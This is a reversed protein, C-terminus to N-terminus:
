ALRECAVIFAWSLAFFGIGLGLYLLDMRDETTRHISSRSGHVENRLTRRHPAAARAVSSGSARRTDSASRRGYSDAWYRRPTWPQEQGRSCRGHWRVVVSGAARKPGKGPGSMADQLLGPICAAIGRPSSSRSWLSDLRAHKM